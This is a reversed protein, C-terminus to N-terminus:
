RLNQRSVTFVSGHAAPGAPGAVDQERPLYVKGGTNNERNSFRQLMKIRQVDAGPAIDRIMELTARETM